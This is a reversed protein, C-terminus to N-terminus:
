GLLGRQRALAGIREKLREFRKRLAAATCPTGAAALVHAIEEWELAQDLRLVLLNQEEPELSARIEDLQIQKRMRSSRTSNRPLKSAAETPLHERRRRYPDERIRRAANCAVGFTWTRLSSAERLTGISKWVWESFLSFADEADDDDRLVARLYGRVRPGLARIVESAAAAEDNAVLLAGVQVDLPTRAVEPGPPM